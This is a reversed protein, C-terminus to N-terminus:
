DQAKVCLGHLGADVPPLVRLKRVVIISLSIGLADLWALLSEDESQVAEQEEAAADPRTHGTSNRQADGDEDGLTEGDCGLHTVPLICLCLAIMHYQQMWSRVDLRSAHRGCQTHNRMDM